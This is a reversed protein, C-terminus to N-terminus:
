TAARATWKTAYAVACSCSTRAVNHVNLENATIVIAAYTSMWIMQDLEPGFLGIGVAPTPAVVAEHKIGPCESRSRILRAECARALIGSQKKKVTSVADLPTVLTAQRLVGRYTATPTHRSPPDPSKTTGHGSLLLGRLGLTVAAIM